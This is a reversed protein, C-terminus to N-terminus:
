RDAKALQIDIRADLGTLLFRADDWKAPGFRGKANNSFGIEEKPIRFLGTDLKGNKNKDYVVAIAYEGPTHAGLSVLANGHENVDVKTQVLPDVLFSESSNFLSVVVQGEGPEAGTVSVEISLENESAGAVATIVACLVPFSSIARILDRM